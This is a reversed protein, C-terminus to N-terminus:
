KRDVTYPMAAFSVLGVLVLLARVPATHRAFRFGEIINEMPSGGQELATGKTIRMLLLGTIVAIYSVGNAFFCWGEGISAVLVGAIAPGIIRASNFMASNLAIANFLDDRGVMDILFTQRAPIDFATAVGLLSALVMIEWVRVVHTLTLGALLLALVM